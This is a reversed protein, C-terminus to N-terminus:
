LGNRVSLKAFQELVKIPVQCTVALFWIGFEGDQSVGDRKVDNRTVMKNRYPNAGYMIHWERGSQAGLM